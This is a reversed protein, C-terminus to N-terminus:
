LGKARKISEGGITRVIKGGKMNNSSKDRLHVIKQM